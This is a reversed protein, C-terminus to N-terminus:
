CNRGNGYPVTPEGVNTGTSAERGYWDAHNTFIYGESEDLRIAFLSCEQRFDRALKIERADVYVRLAHFIDIISVQSKIEDSRTRYRYVIYKELPGIIM